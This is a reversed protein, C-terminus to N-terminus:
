EGGMLTSTLEAIALQTDLKDQQRQTDLAALALMIIENESPEKEMPEFPESFEEVITPNNGWISLIQEVYKFDLDSILEQRGLESNVYAKRHNEGQETQTLVSVSDKTLMDIFIM